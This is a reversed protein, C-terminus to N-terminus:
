FYAYHLNVWGTRWHGLAAATPRPYACSECLTTHEWSAEWDGVRKIQPGERVLFPTMFRFPNEKILTVQGDKSGVSVNLVRVSCSGSLKTVREALAAPHGYLYKVSM